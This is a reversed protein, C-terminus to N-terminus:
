TFMRVSDHGPQLHGPGVAVERDDIIQDMRVGHEHWPLTARRTAASLQEEAGETARDVEGELAHFRSARPLDPFM